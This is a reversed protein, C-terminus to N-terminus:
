KWKGLIFEDGELQSHFFGFENLIEVSWQRDLGVLM